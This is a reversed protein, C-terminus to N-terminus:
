LNLFFILVLLVIIYQIWMVPVYKTMSISLSMYIEPKLVICGIQISSAIIVLIFM